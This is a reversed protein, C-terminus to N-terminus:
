EWEEKREGKRIKRIVRHCMGRKIGKRREKAEGINEDVPILHALIIFYPL